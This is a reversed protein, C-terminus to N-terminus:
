DRFEHTINNGIKIRVNTRLEDNETIKVLGGTVVLMNDNGIIGWKKIILVVDGPFDLEVGNALMIEVPIGFQMATVVLIEDIWNIIRKHRPKNKYGM